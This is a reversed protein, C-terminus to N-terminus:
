QKLARHHSIVAVEDEVPLKLMRLVPFFDVSGDFHDWTLENTGGQKFGSHIQHKKLGRIFFRRSKTNM